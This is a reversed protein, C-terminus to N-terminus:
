QKYRTSDKVFHIYKEIDEKLPQDKYLCLCNKGATCEKPLPLKVSASNTIINGQNDVSSTQQAGCQLGDPGFLFIRYGDKLYINMIGSDYQKGSYSKSNILTYITEFSKITAKDPSPFFVGWISGTFSSVYYIMAGAVLLLVLFTLVIDGKKSNKIKRSM